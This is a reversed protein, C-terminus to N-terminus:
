AGDPFLIEAMRELTARITSLDRVLAVRLYSFGPNSQIEGPKTERGMYAGPLTRIGGERWLKLASEEGNGTNLWLFFGAEPVRLGARNGLIAEAAAFKEAYAARNAEVHAEDNWAAASAAQLPIPV